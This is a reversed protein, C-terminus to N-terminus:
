AADVSVDLLTDLLCGVLRVQGWNQGSWWSAKDRLRGVHFIRTEMRLKCLLHAKHVSGEWPPAADGTDLWISDTSVGKNVELSGAELVM